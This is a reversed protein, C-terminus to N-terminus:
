EKMSLGIRKREMDVELVTVWVHQQVKVEDAPNIVYKNALNSIHVLGDHHVGVDVFAGFATVNTIIGPLKMGVSLDEIKQIDEAFSFSKYEERPDRGPRALEEIIDTLTPLGFKDTLYLNPDIQTTISSNGVMQDLTQGLDKAIARVVEYSEPHVASSDLPNDGDRIRLFGAAQEFVKPGLRPVNKLSERNPFPGNENRYKVIANALKPGLGSVYSLLEASATNLEVGVNNVCSGVVEDLREKLSKQDVDHQYQGVGISKPDIKVLESLPDMLRRGISVTGRVTLDHDPFENRAVESASYVSAGNENVMVIDINSDLELTKLFGETERSATGNGVAIAEVDYLRCLDVIKYGAEEEARDGTHPYVTDNHLLQGQRDLCAVKCGSRFGPDLALVNKQGLAPAMLLERLNDAFVAIATDEARIRAEKRVETEMSSELLPKYRDKIAQNIEDSAQTEGTIFIDQLLAVAQVAPPSINISLMSEKEGRLMALVRHSPVKIVPEKWEFYDRYKSAEERKGSIVSSSFTGESWFLKRIERRAITNESVWEAIIDRAGTLADQVNDVGNVTGTNSDVYKAAAENVDFDEQGWIQLALPELRKEKAITARTRRKPRYPLYIDELTSLTEAGLITKQLENTLLGRKELSELIVRRRETLERIQFLRNRISTIEVEDLSGTNEKRYRAIFPVTGGGDLLSATASVQGPRLRLDKAIQSIPDDLM